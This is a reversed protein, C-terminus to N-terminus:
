AAPAIDLEKSRFLFLVTWRFFLFDEHSERQQQRLQETPPYLTGTNAAEHGSPPPQNRSNGYCTALLAQIAGVCHRTLEDELEESVTGAARRDQARFYQLYGLNNFLALLQLLVFNDTTIVSPDEAICNEVVSLAMKFLKLAMSLDTANGTEFWALTHSLALNYLITCCTYSECIGEGLSFARDFFRFVSGPRDSTPEEEDADGASEFVALYARTGVPICCRLGSQHSTLGSSSSNGGGRELSSRTLALAQQLKAISAQHNGIAMYEISQANLESVLMTEKTNGNM